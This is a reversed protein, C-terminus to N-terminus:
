RSFLLLQLLTLNLRFTKKLPVLKQNVTGDGSILTLELIDGESGSPFKRYTESAGRKVAKSMLELCKTYVYFMNLPPIYIASVESTGSDHDTSFIQSM